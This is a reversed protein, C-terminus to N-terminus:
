YGTKWGADLFAQYNSLTKCIETQASTLGIYKLTKNSSNTIKVANICMALINNLSEETLKPCSSFMNEMNTVNSTDLLPITELSTCYSFLHGASLGKISMKGVVKTIARNLGSSYSTGAEITDPLVTFNDYHELNGRVGLITEGSKLKDPTLGIAESVAGNPIRSILTGGPKIKYDGEYTGIEKGFVTQLFCDDGRGVYGPMGTLGSTTRMDKSSFKYMSTSSPSYTERYTTTGTTWGNPTIDDIKGEPVTGYNSDGLYKEFIYYTYTVLGGDNYCKVGDRSSDRTLAFENDMSPAVYLEARLYYKPSGSYTPKKFYIRFMINKGTVDIPFKSTPFLQTIGLDGAIYTDRNYVLPIYDKTSIIKGKGTGTRKDAYPITYIVEDNLLRGKGVIREDNKSYAIIGNDINAAVATADETNVSTGDVGFINVGSKINEPKLDEDGAVIVKSFGDKESILEQQEAKPVVEIEELTPTIISMNTNGKLNATSAIEGKILISPRIM